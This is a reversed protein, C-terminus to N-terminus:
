FHIFTTEHVHHKTMHSKKEQFSKFQFYCHVSDELFCCIELFSFKLVFAGTDVCVLHSILRNKFINTTGLIKAM